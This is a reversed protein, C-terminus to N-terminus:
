LFPPPEDYPGRQASSRELVHEHILLPLVISYRTLFDEPSPQPPPAEARLESLRTLIRQETGELLGLAGLTIVLGEATPTLFAAFCQGPPFRGPLGPASVELVEEGLLDRARLRDADLSEETRLLRHQSRHLAELASLEQAGLPRNVRLVARDLLPRDRSDRAGFVVWEFLAADVVEAAGELKSLEALQALIPKAAPEVDAVLNTGRVGEILEDLLLRVQDVPPPVFAEQRAQALRLSGEGGLYPCGQPCAITTVRHEGCCQPCIGQGGRAPCPRKGKRQGCVDCKLKPM